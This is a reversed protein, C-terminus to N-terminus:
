DFLDFALRVEDRDCEPRLARAPEYSDSAEYRTRLFAPQTTDVIVPYKRDVFTHSGADYICRTAAPELMGSLPDFRHIMALGAAIKPRISVAFRTLSRNRSDFEAWYGRALSVITGVNGTVCHPELLEFFSRSLADDDDMRATAFVFPQDSGAAFEGAIGSVTRCLDYPEDPAMPVLRAWPHPALMAELNVRNPQPLETSTFVVLRFWDEAPPRTQSLISPLTLREFLFAHAGLRDPHFLAERYARPDPNRGIRWSTRGALTWVSYRVLVICRM